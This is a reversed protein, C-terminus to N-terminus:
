ELAGYYDHVLDPLMHTYSENLSSVTRFNVCASDSTTDELVPNPETMHATIKRLCHLKRFQM